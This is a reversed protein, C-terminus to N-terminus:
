RSTAEEEIIRRMTDYYKEMSRLLQFQARARVLNHEKYQIRYYHDGDLYDTLFRLGIIFTMLKASFALYDIETQTLVAATQSLFGRAYARFLDINVAVKTLDAEDEAATNACTRIADGFDFHILGPMVTDLDIICLAHMQSDFLINNFKTDNHTIRQPILGQDALNQLTQMDGVRRRVFDIEQAVQKVRGAADTGVAEEFAQLRYNIDHFAPITTHLQSVPLDALLALFGGFAQGGHYAMDPNEVVDFSLSGAIHYYMRWYRGAEDRYFSGGNSAPVLTLVRRRIEDKPFPPLKQRLHATVLEINRMLAPVDKFIHHNIQQLVYDPCDAPSTQVLYTTNIHGSGLPRIVSPQACIQFHGVIHKLPETTSM